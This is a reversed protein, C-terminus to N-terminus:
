KSEKSRRIETADQTTSVMSFIRLGETLLAPIANNVNFNQDFSVPTAREKRSDRRGVVRRTFFINKLRQFSKKPVAAERQDLCFLCIIM